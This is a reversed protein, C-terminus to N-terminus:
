LVENRAKGIGFLLGGGIAVACFIHWLRLPIRKHERRPLWLAITALSLAGFVLTHQLTMIDM